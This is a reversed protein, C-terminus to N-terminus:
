RPHVEKQWGRRRGMWSGSVLPVREGGPLSFSSHCLLISHADSHGVSVCLLSGCPSHLGLYLECSFLFIGLLVAKLSVFYLSSFVEGTHLLALFVMISVM